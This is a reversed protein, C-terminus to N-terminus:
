ESALESSPVSRFRGSILKTRFVFVNMNSRMMMMRYIYVSYTSRFIFELLFHSMILSGGTYVYVYTGLYVCSYICVYMCM